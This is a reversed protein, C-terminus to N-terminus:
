STDLTGSWPLVSLPRNRKRLIQVDRLSKQFPGVASTRHVESGCLCHVKGFQAVSPVYRALEERHWGIRCADFYEHQVSIGCHLTTQEPKASMQSLVRAWHAAALGLKKLMVLGGGGCSGLKVTSSHAASAPFHSSCVNAGYQSIYM